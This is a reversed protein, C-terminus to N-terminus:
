GKEVPVWTANFAISIRVDDTQHPHVFHYLWGPFLVMAGPEPRILIRQGYPSGPADVMETFPRPDYLELVGGLSEQENVGTLYYCGSWASGPHNHMRHYDGRRSVNAWAALRFGGRLQEIKGRAEPLQYTSQVMSQIAGRIWERLVSVEPVQWDLLDSTSHWGGRNAYDVSPSVSERELIAQLLARNLSQCEAFQFRGVLTAFVSAIHQSSTMVSEKAPSEFPVLHHKELTLKCCQWARLSALPGTVRM